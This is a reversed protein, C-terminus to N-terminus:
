QLPRARGTIRDDKSTLRSAPLASPLRQAATPPTRGLRVAGAM